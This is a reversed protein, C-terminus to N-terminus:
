FRLSLCSLAGDMKQFESMELAIVPYGFDRLTSEFRPHGASVIVADNIRLFNAAYNEQDAIPVIEYGRFAADGALAGILVLRNDGLYSIGSKLHLIGSVGRIDVVASTFGEQALIGALQRVGESNTRASLGIFFHNEAQCVDGGDVTGPAVIAHIRSFLPPLAAAISAVEGMRSAAGPRTVIACCSTLIATDEVFTSDPYRGDSPLRTLALGCQELTECYRAHQELAKAFVPKGLDVSTLGEAFNAAPPRVIARTYRNM